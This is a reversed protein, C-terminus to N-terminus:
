DIVKTPAEKEKILSDIINKAKDKITELLERKTKSIKTDKLRNDMDEIVKKWVSIQQDITTATDYNNKKITLIYKSVL